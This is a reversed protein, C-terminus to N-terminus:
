GLKRWVAVTALVTCSPVFRHCCLTIPVSVSQMIIIISQPFFYAFVPVDYEIVFHQM